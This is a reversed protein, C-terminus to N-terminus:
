LGNDFAWLEAEAEHKFKPLSERAWANGLVADELNEDTLNMRYRTAVYRAGSNLRECNISSAAGCLVDMILPAVLWLERRREGWYTYRENELSFYADPRGFRRFWVILRCLKLEGARAERLFACHFWAHDGQADHEADRVCPAGM